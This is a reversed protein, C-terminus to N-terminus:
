IQTAIMLAIAGLGAGVLGMVLTPLGLLVMSGMGSDYTTSDILLYLLVNAVIGSGMLGVVALSLGLFAHTRVLPSTVTAAGTATDYPETM